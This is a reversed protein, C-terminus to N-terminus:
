FQHSKIFKSHSIKALDKVFNVNNQKHNNREHKTFKYVFSCNIEGNDGWVIIVAFNFTLIFYCFNQKPDHTTVCGLFPQGGYRSYMKHNQDPKHCMAHNSIPDISGDGKLMHFVYKKVM